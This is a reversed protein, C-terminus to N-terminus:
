HKTAALSTAVEWNFQVFKYLAEELLREQDSHAGFGKAGDEEDVMPGIGYCQVGKARLYAMDTAGTSMEPLTPTRYIKQNAAEIVRWAESDIRSPAATDRSIRNTPVVEVAPDDIVKRMLEYFKPMDEDPLTRIDLTAEAESPIVNSRFGGKLITPVVSTRLISYHTLEHEAFYAQIAASRAPDTLHLYRDAQEATSVKALREFYTRTTDNLRMPPQNAYVKWIAQSLHALPNDLRPRSGHGAQGHAVLVVRRPVKETTAIEVTRVKGDRSMATGGETIAFECDIEDWHQNVMFGIGVNAGGEEGAEGLFIVDRDLPVKLRKLMLVVMLATTVKDKDDISGRGYIYGDKRLAAFPDVTWKERQVGVVDLHGMILLPRKAGDGKLRAVVNGRGPEMEYIRAPIGERDLVSKLYQAAKTENGPPSSTDIRILNSYHEFIESQLSNWDVAFRDAAFLARTAFTAALLGM